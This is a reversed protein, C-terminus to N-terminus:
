TGGEVLRMSSYHQGAQRGVEYIPVINPHSLNAAAEAEALFRRVDAPSAFQGALIMKLAVLRNLSVQRAKYVVGMGGRDIEEIIEYDGFAKPQAVAGLPDLGIRITESAPSPPGSPTTALADQGLCHSCSQGVAGFPLPTGCRVCTQGDVM